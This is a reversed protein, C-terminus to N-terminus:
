GPKIKKEKNKVKKQNKIKKEGEQTGFRHPLRKCFGLVIKYYSTDKRAFVFIM